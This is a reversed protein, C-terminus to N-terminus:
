TRISHSLSTLAVKRASPQLRREHKLLPMHKIKGPLVAKNNSRKAEVTLITIPSLIPLNEASRNRYHNSIKGSREKGRPNAKIFGMWQQVWLGGAEAEPARTAIRHSWVWSQSDTRGTWDTRSGKVSNIGKEPRTADQWLTIPRSVHFRSLPPLTTTVLGRLQYYSQADKM